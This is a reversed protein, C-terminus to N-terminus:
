DDSQDPHLGLMRMFEAAEQADVARDCIAKRAAQQVEVSWSFSRNMHIADANLSNGM